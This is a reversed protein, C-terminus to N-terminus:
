IDFALGSLVLWAERNTASASHRLAFLKEFIDVLSLVTFSSASTTSSLSLITATSATTM